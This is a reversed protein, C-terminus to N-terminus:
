TPIGLDKSIMKRAIAHYFQSNKMFASRATDIGKPHKSLQRYLPRVYKMRGQETIFAVTDDILAESGFRLNIMYWRFRMECNKSSKFGFHSDLSELVKVFHAREDHGSCESDIRQQIMDLMLLIQRTQLSHSLPRGPSEFLKDVLNQCELALTTDLPQKPPIGPTKLWFEWDIEAIRPHSAFFGCFCAKFDDSDISKFKFTECHHRLYKEMELPGGVLKELFLLFNFGKEYSVTSFADDPDVGELDQILKTFEHECGFHKCSTELSAFGIEAQLDRMKEGSAHFHAAIRRELYVCFGENLWVHGWTKNTVLNGMWSHAVEHAVVDVLSRDGALLTPTVFTLCPNEMGGYPFSPPLVLFGYDRWVYPGCIEEAIAIFRDTDASFERWAEEFTEPEAYLICRDRAGFSRQELRGAAIALLYSPIPIPQSFSFVQFDGEVASGTGLGSMLALIGVPVRVRATFTFKWGPEDLVPILTRAHIFQCQTFMFPAKGGRTQEPTLWQLAEAGPATEFAIRVRHGPSLRAALRKGFVPHESRTELVLAEADGEEGLSVCSHIRLGKSDFLAESCTSDFTYTAHGSVVHATFDITLDLDIHRAAM